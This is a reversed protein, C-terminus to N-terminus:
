NKSSARQIFQIVPKFFRSFEFEQDFCRLAEEQYRSYNSLITSILAEIENFDNFTHGCKYKRFMINYGPLDLAIVPIGCKLFQGLKGSAKLANERGEGYAKNYAILGIHSSLFISDIKNYPVPDLSLLARNKSLALIEQIFPELKSRKEREHFILKYKERWTSAAKAFQDACMADHIWGAHVIVIDSASLQFKSHFFNSIVKDSTIRLPSHPVYLINESELSVENKSFLVKARNEEQIITASAKRHSIKEAKSLLWDFWLYKKGTDIELSWYIYPIKKQTFFYQLHACVVGVTDVAIIADYDNGIINQYCFKFYRWKDKARKKQQYANEINENIILRIFRFKDKFVKPFLSGYWKRKIFPHYRSENDNKRLDYITSSSNRDYCAEQKIKKFTINSNFKPTSPFLSNKRESGLVDVNFGEKELLTLANILSPYVGLYDEEFILAIHL